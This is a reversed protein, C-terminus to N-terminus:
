TLLRYDPGFKTVPIDLMRCVNLEVKVGDSQEWGHLCLLYCAEAHRLMQMNFNIWTAADTELNMRQAVGHLYCVPSFACLGKALLIDTFTRTQGLRQEVVSSVRSSYPAAVYIM